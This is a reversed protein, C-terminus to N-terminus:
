LLIHRSPALVESFPAASNAPGGEACSPEHLIRVIPCAALFQLRAIKLAAAILASTSRYVVIARSRFFNRTGSTVANLLGWATDQASALQSGRGKGAYLDQVKQLARHQTLERRDEVDQETDCIVRLFYGLAEGTNVKRQSLHKMRYMFDDWQAVSIGLQRKVAQANFETNHPM